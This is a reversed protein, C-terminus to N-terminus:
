GEDTFTPAPAPADRGRVVRDLIQSTRRELEDHTVYAGGARRAAPDIRARGAPDAPRAERAGSPSSAFPVNAEGDGVGNSAPTVARAASSGAAVGVACAVVVRIAAKM